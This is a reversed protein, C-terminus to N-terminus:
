ISLRKCIFEGMHDRFLYEEGPMDEYMRSIGEPSGAARFRIRDTDTHVVYASCECAVM